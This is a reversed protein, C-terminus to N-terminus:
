IKRIWAQLLGALTVIILAPGFYIWSAPTWWTSWELTEVHVMESQPGSWLKSHGDPWFIGSAGSLTARILPRGMEVARLRIQAAHLFTAGTKEFWADNTHNTLLDAQTLEVGERVRDILLAESCLLPHVVLPKDNTSPIVFRSESSLHGPVQSVWGLRQDLWRRFGESGPMREGFHMPVVKAQIFSPRGAVEGRVLNQNGGETGFLWAVNRSSAESRLRDHAGRDDRGLISSEGWLVLTPRSSHPLQYDKLAQDSLSWGKSEMDPSRLGAPFNSQVVVIDLQKQPATTTSRQLLLWAAHTIGLVVLFSLPGLCSRWGRQLGAWTATGWLLASLGLASLWAAGTATWPVAGLVSGWTWPYVRFAWGEWLILGLGIAWAASHAGRKRHIAHAVKVLIWIGLSEYAVFLLTAFSALGISIGGKLHLTPVMWKFLILFGVMLSIFLSRHSWQHQLSKFIFFPILWVAVIEMSGLDEFPFMLALLMLAVLSFGLLIEQTVGLSKVKGVM